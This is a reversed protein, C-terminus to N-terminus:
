GDVALTATGTLEVALTLWLTKRPRDVTAFFQGDPVLTAGDLTVRPEGGEWGDIALLAHRIPATPSSFVLTV